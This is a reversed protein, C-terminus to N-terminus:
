DFEIIKGLGVMKVVGDDCRFGQSSSKNRVKGVMSPVRTVDYNHCRTDPLGMMRMMKKWHYGHGADNFKAFAAFHIVEHGVTRQLFLEPNERLLTPNYEIIGRGLRAKGATTSKLAFNVRFKPLHLGFLGNAKAICAHTAEVCERMLQTMDEPTEVVTIM